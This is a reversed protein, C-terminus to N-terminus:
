VNGPVTGRPMCERSRLPADDQTSHVTTRSGSTGSASFQTLATTVAANVAAEIAAPNYQPPPLPTQNPTIPTTHRMSRRPPM